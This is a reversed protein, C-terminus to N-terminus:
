SMVEDNGGFKEVGGTRNIDPPSPKVLADGRSIRCNRDSVDTLYGVKEGGGNLSPMAGADLSASAREGM